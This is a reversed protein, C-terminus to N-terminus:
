KGVVEAAEKERSQPTVPERNDEREYLAVFEDLFQPDLKLTDDFTWEHNIRTQILVTTAAIARRQMSESMKTTIESLDKSYEASILESLKSNINGQMADTIAVYAKEPTTKQEKSVRNALFVLQTVGDTGQMVSDVFSKEAVSLYGKREIEIIGIEENGLRLIETNKKPQVVFPLVAMVLSWAAYYAQSM